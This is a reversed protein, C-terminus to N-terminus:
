KKEGPRLLKEIADTLSPLSVTTMKPEELTGTVRIEMIERAIDKLLSELGTMRPMAGPPGTLFTLKLKSSKMDMTGSGVISLAPGSLFIEDFILQNGQLRYELNGETFASDGPLHLYIVHLLGLIVPLKYLKAKSIRMVGSARRTDIKGLTGTLQIRGDLSGRVQPPTRPAADRAKFLEQLRIGQVSLSLGYQLPDTLKIEAFGAVIGGHSRASMDKVHLVPTGVAKLIKAELDTIRRKGIFIGDIAMDAELTAGKSGGSALGTLSGSFKKKGVGVAAVADNFTVKGRANWSILRGGAEATAPASSPRRRHVFALAPLDVNCTGGPRLNRALPAVAKPMAALVKADIPLGNAKISLQASTTNKDYTIQGGIAAAQKQDKSVINKLIVKGPSAIVQGALAKLTYPFGRYTAQVDKADLVLNYDLKGKHEPTNYRISLAAQAKGAPGLQRWISQLPAPLAKCLESDLSLPGTQIRLAVVPKKGALHVYGAEALAIPTQGHRGQFEKIVVRGPTIELLGLGGTVEYPFVKPKLTVDSAEARVDYRLEQKKSQLVRIAAQVRGTANLDELRSRHPKDLAAILVRDIPLNRVAATVNVDPRKTNIGSITGQVTCRMPGRRGRVHEILVHHGTIHVRGFVNDVRYPFGSYTMSASGDLTIDAEVSRSEDSPERHVHVVAGITGAPNVMRWARQYSPGIAELLAKDCQIDQGHITVDFHRGKAGLVVSGRIVARGSDRRCTLHQLKAVGSDVAIAGRLDYVRYPFYRYSISMGQPEALAQVKLKGGKARRLTATLDLPGKPEYLRHLMAVFRALPSRGPLERPLAMRLVKVKIELPSTAEYGDYRGSLEFRPRGAQVVQGTVNRLTLGKEDFALVGRVADLEFGGQEPPLKLSTDVLELEPLAEAARTEPAPKLRLVGKVDFREQWKRYKEYKKPLLSVIDLIRGSGSLLTVKGTPVNLGFSVRNTEKQDAKVQEIDIVYNASDKPTMLIDCERTGGPMLLKGMVEVQRLRCKQVRIHPLEMLQWATTSSHGIDARSLLKQYSYTGDDRYHEVTIAPEVLTIETPQVRRKLVLSWPRHRLIVSKAQLLAYSAGAEPPLFVNVGRLEINGFLSFRAQDVTVHAGTLRRLYWKAQRRIRRDNTLHWYGYIATVLLALTLVGVGRRQPSVYRWFRRRRRPLHERITRIIERM